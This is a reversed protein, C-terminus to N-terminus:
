APAAVAIATDLSNPIKGGANQLDRGPDAQLLFIRREGESVEIVLDTIIKLLVYFISGL